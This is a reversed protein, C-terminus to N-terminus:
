RSLLQLLEEIISPAFGLVCVESGSILSAYKGMEGALDYAGAKGLWSKSELLEGFQNDTLQNIEVTAHEVSSKEEWSDGKRILLTTGSWVNHRRGSLRLLMVAASARDIPQGLSQQLDDPDEVLTDALLIFDPIEIEGMQQIAIEIKAAEVKSALIKQVQSRVDLGSPPLQEASLLGAVSFDVFEADLRGKLWERRRSSASALHVKCRSM